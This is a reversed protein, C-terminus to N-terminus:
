ARMAHLMGTYPAPGVTHKRVSGEQETNWGRSTTKLPSINYEGSREMSRVGGLPQKPNRHGKGDYQTQATAQHAVMTCKLSTRNHERM